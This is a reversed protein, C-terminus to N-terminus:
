PPEGISWDVIAHEIAIDKHLPPSSGLDDARARAHYSGLRPVEVALGGLACWGSAALSGGADVADVLALEIVVRHPAGCELPDWSAVLRAIAPTDAIPADLCGALSLAVLVGCAAVLYHCARRRRLVRALTLGRDCTCFRGPM